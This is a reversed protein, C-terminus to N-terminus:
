QLGKPLVRGIIGVLYATSVGFILMGNISAFAGFLRLDEGLLIDGYGLTTYNSLAFYLAPEVGEVAGVWRYAVAWGWVQAVHGIVILLFTAGILRAARQLSFKRRQLAAHRNLLVLSFLILALHLASCLALIGTGYGIQAGLTM